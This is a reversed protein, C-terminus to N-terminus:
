RRHRTIPIADEMEAEGYHEAWSRQVRRILAPYVLFHRFPAIATMYLRTYPSVPKVYVAMYALYGGPAPALSLSMFAHATANRIESLQEHEFVYLTTFPEFLEERSCDTPTLRDVYTEAPCTGDQDWGLLTGLRWRLWFLGKIINVAAAMYAM